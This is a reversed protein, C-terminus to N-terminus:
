KLLTTRILKALKDITYPKRLLPFLHAQDKNADTKGKSFGSTLIVKIKPHNEKTWVSLMHGDMEGPMLVDSFLLDIHEGSEIIIKAMDANEAELTIYGLNKLDRLTVRRVRPEDEVVLIVKPGHSSLEEKEEKEEKSDVDHTKDDITEPFYMSVTTGQGLTSDIHCAGQSQQTFGFVMSLGLGSGKGIEKTTFFPEYVHQLDEYSIGSGTDTVSIKVYDGERLSCSYKVGDGDGHHYQTAGITITGGEPMADRANLSLNLLANELQSPDINIFLDDDSLDIDLEVGAALTRSLFRAFKEIIDNANKIEPQLTKARSFALMRQTLEAGDDAASMADEFLENIEVTTQGIDEQLFRLNGKIVSLLNNFDHAIGGTLQGVAEMKQAQNLANENKRLETIDQGIGIVGTINGEMDRRTTANLLLEIYEGEKSNLSFEYNAIEDGKLANNLVQKVSSKNDETIFGEVLDRGMVDEKSFGTIKATQQNWENIKGETDIGFIPANATNILQSLEATVQEREAESLRIKKFTHEIQELLGNFSHGLTYFENKGFGSLNLKKYYDHSISINKIENALKSLPTSLFRQLYFAALISIILGLPIAILLRNLLIQQQRELRTTNIEYYITGVNADDHIVGSSFLMRDELFLHQQQNPLSIQSHLIEGQSYHMIVDAGRDLLDAHMIMPLERLKLKLDTNMDPLGFLAIKAHDSEFVKSIIESENVLQKKIKYIDSLYVTFSSVMIIFVAVVIMMFMLQKRISQHSFKPINFKAM